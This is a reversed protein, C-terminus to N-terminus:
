HRQVLEIYIGNFEEAKFFAVKSGRSGTIIKDWVFQIGRSRLDQFVTELDEVEFAIHHIGEGHEKLFDAVLGTHATTHVLEVNVEGIPFFALRTMAGEVDLEETERLKLGLLEQYPRLSKELDKVVIGIHEIKSIVISGESGDSVEDM